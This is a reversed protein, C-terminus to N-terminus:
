QLLIMKRVASFGNMQIRYFYVGSSLNRNQYTIEYWGAESERDMLTAVSRGLIDYLEIRVRGSEKVGFRITTSPNFPNPHNQLLAYEVPTRTAVPLVRTQLGHSFASTNGAGDTATATVVPGAATGNWIFHGGADATVTAEFLDGESDLTSFIEVISNAPATGVVPSLGTITPAVLDENGGQLDIGLGANSYIRNQTITNFRSALELVRVGDEGNYAIRNCSGIINNSAGYGILVGCNANPLAMTGTTDTGIFNGEVRNALAMEMLHLGNRGNCSIVNGEGPEKGGITNDHAAIMV